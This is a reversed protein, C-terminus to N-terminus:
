ATNEAAPGGRSLLEGYLELSRRVDGSALARELDSGGARAPGDTELADGEDLALPAAAAPAVGAPARTRASRALHVLHAARVRARPSGAPPPAAPPALEPPVAAGSWSEGVRLRALRATGHWVEVVGEDVDVAVRAGSAVRFKTGVVVVRYGAATVVFTRGPAQHPVSFHVAGFLVAPRQQDDIALMSNAALAATVGGALEVAVPQGAPAEVSAPGTVLRRSPRAPAALRQPEPARVVAVSRAPPAAAVPGLPAGAPWFAFALAAALAASSAVGGVFWRWRRPMRPRLLVSTALSVKGWVRRLAVDDGTRARADDIAKRLEAEMPAPSGELWRRSM